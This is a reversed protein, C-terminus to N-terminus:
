QDLFDLVAAGLLKSEAMNYHTRNPIIALPNGYSDLNKVPTPNM